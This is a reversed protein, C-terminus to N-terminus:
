IIIGAQLQSRIENKEADSATIKSVDPNIFRCLGTCSSVTVEEAAPYGATSAYNDPADYLPARIQVYAKQPAGFSSFGRGGALTPAGIGPRAAMELGQKTLGLATGGITGAANIVGGTIVEPNEALAGIGIMKASDGIGVAGATLIGAVNLVDSGLRAAIQGAATGSMPVDAGIQGPLIAIPYKKEDWTELDVIATCSGTAFDIAYKAKLTGGLVDAPELQVTGCYPLYLTIEMNTCDRFDGFVFPLKLQGAQLIEAYNNLAYIATTFHLPVYGSGVFMDQGFSSCGPVNILSFPYVRLSVFYDLLSSTNFSGTDLALTFMFNKWYDADTFSTWLLNGLEAIQAANMVYQTVFGLTSGVGLSDPTEIDDGVNEGDPFVDPDPRGGGGGSPDPIDDETFVDEYIKHGLKQWDRLNSNLSADTGHMKQNAPENEPTFRSTAITYTYGNVAQSVTNQKNQLYWATRIQDTNFRQAVAFTPNGGGIYGFVLGNYIYKNGYAANNFMWQIFETPVEIDPHSLGTYGIGNTRDWYDVSFRGYTGSTSPAGTGYGWLWKVVKGSGSVEICAASSAYQNDGRFYSIEPAYIYADGLKFVLGKRIFYCPSYTSLESGDYFTKGPSFEFGVIYLLLTKGDHTGTGAIEFRNREKVFDEIGISYSEGSITTSLKMDGNIWDEIQSANAAIWKNNDVYDSGTIFSWGEQGSIPNDIMVELHLNLANYETLKAMEIDNFLYGTNYNISYPLWSNMFNSYIRYGNLGMRYQSCAYYWATKCYESTLKLNQGTDSDGTIQVRKYTFGSKTPDVFGMLYANAINTGQNPSTGFQAIKVGTPIYSTSYDPYFSGPIM